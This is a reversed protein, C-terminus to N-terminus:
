MLLIVPHSKVPLLTLHILYYSAMMSLLQYLIALKLLCVTQLIM